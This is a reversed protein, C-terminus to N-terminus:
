LHSGLNNKVLTGRRTSFRVEEIFLAMKFVLYKGPNAPDFLRLSYDGGYANILGVPLEPDTVPISISTGYSDALATNSYINGVRDTIEWVYSAGPTLAANLVIATNCNSLFDSFIGNNCDM